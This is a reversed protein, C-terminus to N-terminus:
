QNLRKENEYDILMEAYDIIKKYDEIPDETKKGARLCYKLINAKCFEELFGYAKLINKVEYREDDPKYYNDM